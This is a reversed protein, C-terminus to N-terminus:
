DEEEELVAFGLQKIIELDKPSLTPVHTLQTLRVAQPCVPWYPRDPTTGACRRVTITGAISM